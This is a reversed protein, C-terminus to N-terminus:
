PQLTSQTQGPKILVKMGEARRLSDVATVAEDLPFIKSILSRADLKGTTVLEIAAEIDSRQYIRTGIITIEAFMVSLLDIGHLGPRHASVIVATGATRLWGFLEGTVSTHGSAEFVVDVGHGLDDPNEVIKIGLDTAYQRRSASPESM